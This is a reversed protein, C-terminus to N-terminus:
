SVTPKLSAGEPISGYELFRWLDILLRRAVAVIGIRRTRSDARLFVDDCKGIILLSDIRHYLFEAANIRLEGNKLRGATILKQRVTTKGFGSHSGAL